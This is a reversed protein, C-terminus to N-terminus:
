APKEAVFLVQTLSFFTADREGQRALDALWADIEESSLAGRGRLYDAVLLALTYCFVEPDHRTNLIPLPAVRTVTFGAARLLPALRRPLHDHAVHGAWARAVRAGLAEDDVQWALTSWDTDVLALRGGPRLVRFTEAVAREVAVIYEFVQAAGAFAFTEDAFPLDTADGLRLDLRELVGCGEARARTLELMAETNEVVALLGEPGLVEALECPAHGVGSGIYLGHEGPAPALADRVARRRAVADATAYMVEMKRGAQADFGLMTTMAAIRPYRPDELPVILDNV